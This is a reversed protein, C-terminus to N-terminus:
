ASRRVRVLRLGRGVGLLALGLAVYPLTDAGSRALPAGPATAARDTQSSQGSAAAPRTASGSRTVSASSTRTASASRSSSGSSSSGATAPPGAAFEDSKASGPSDRRDSDGAPVGAPPRPLTPVIMMGVNTTTEAGGTLLAEGCEGVASARNMITGLDSGPEVRANLELTRTEGTGIAGINEFVLDGNPSRTARPVSSVATWEVGRSATPSDTVRVKDLLCDNPNRVDLKWSFTDGPRITAPDSVKTLGIGPCEVGGAPVALGVEMHGIRLEAATDFLRVVVMDNAASVRTGTETPKSGHRGFVARHEGGIRIDGVPQGDIFVGTRDGLDGMGVAILEDDQLLRIAPKDEDGSSEPRSTVGGRTGDTAARMVWEGGVELTFKEDVGPLGFTVPAITQRLEAVAAFRGPRDAIPELYTRSKTTSVARGPEDASLSVLPKKSDPDFDVDGVETDDASAAARALDDGIVCGTPVARAAAEARLLDAKVAPELNTETQRRDPKGTPPAKSDAPSGMDVDIGVADPPDLTVARAHAQGTLGSFGTVIPRGLEDTFAPLPQAAYVTDAMALDVTVGGGESLEPDSHLVTGTGYAAFAENGLRGFADNSPAVKRAVPSKPNPFSRGVPRFSVRGSTGSLVLPRIRSDPARRDAAGPASSIAGAASGALLLGAAAAIAVLSTTRTRM